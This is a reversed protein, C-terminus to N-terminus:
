RVSQPSLGRDDFKRQPGYKWQTAVWEMYDRPEFLFLFAEVQFALCVAYTRENLIKFIILVQLDLISLLRVVVVLM